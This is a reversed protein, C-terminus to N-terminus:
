EGRLQTLRKRVLRLDDQPIKQSKKAMCHLLITLNGDITFFTRVIGFSLNTTRVEWLNNEIKEVLPMGMPWGFQVTKIDEGITTRDEPRLSKLWERVPENGALTRFFKITLLPENDMPELTGINICM